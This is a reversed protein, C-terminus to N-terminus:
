GWLGCATSFTASTSRAVVAQRFSQPADPVLALARNVISRYLRRSKGTAILTTIMGRSSQRRVALPGPVFAFRFHRAIRLWMDYDELGEGCFGGVRDLAVRRLLVV